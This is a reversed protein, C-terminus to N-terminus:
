NTSRENTWKSKKRKGKPLPRYIEFNTDYLILRTKVDELIDKFIDDAKVHVIFRNTDLHSLKAKKSYKPKTYDYWFDYMVTKRVDLKSLGLYVPKNMLIQTKRMETALLNETFFKTAHYNGESVLYNIKRQTTALKINRHKRVNEMTKGFLANNM